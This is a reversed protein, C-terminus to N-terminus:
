VTLDNESKTDIVKQLSKGFVTSVTAVTLSILIAITAMMPIPPRDDSETLLIWTAGGIIFPISALACYKITRLAKVSFESFVENKGIYGLLKFAQYLAIFFAISAIYAYVLFPDDFYVQSFTANANVGEFWPEVLLFALAGLAVFVLVIQLFITSSRKM